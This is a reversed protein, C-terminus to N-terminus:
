ENTSPPSTKCSSPFRKSIDENGCHRMGYTHRGLHDDNLMIIRMYETTEDRTEIAVIPADRLFGQIIEHTKAVAADVLQRRSKKKARHQPAVVADWM